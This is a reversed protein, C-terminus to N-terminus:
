RCHILNEAPRTRAKAKHCRTKLWGPGPEEQNLTVAADVARAGWVGM